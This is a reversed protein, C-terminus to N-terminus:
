RAPLAPTLAAAPASRAARAAAAVKARVVEHHAVTLGLQVWIFPYWLVTDFFGSAILGIVSGDLGRAILFHFRGSTPDKWALKRTRYNIVFTMGMLGVLMALGPYGLEAVALIFLNHPLEPSMVYGDERLRPFHEHYYPLWGFYGIGHLPYEAAIGWGNKWYTLRSVSTADTGAQTFRAKQEAPLIYFGIALVVIALATGKVRYRTRLLMWLGVAIAGLVAGRSSSGIIALFATVPMAAWFYFKRKSVYPRIALVFYLSIPLFICLGVGFDGSNAFWGGGGALGWSRFGFGFSAWQRMAGFTMYFHYLLFALLFVFFQRETVVINVILFYLLVWIFYVNLNKTAQAQDLAFVISFIVIATFGLLWWSAANRLSFWKGEFIFAAVTLILATQAFPFFNLYGRLEQPRIYEFFMYLNLFWFSAKQTLLFRWIDGVRLRFLHATRAPAAASQPMRVNSAFAM